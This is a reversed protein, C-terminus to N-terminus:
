MHYNSVAFYSGGPGLGGMVIDSGAMGGNPSLGFGVWGTTNVALHFKITGQLNDFGWMLCVLKDQDLYVMFPMTPDMVEAGNAWTLFLSFFPLLSRM